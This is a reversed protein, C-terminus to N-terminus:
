LGGRTTSSPMGDAVTSIIRNLDSPSNNQTGKAKLDRTLANAWHLNLGFGRPFLAQSIYNGFKWDRFM